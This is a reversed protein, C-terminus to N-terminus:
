EPFTSTDHSAPALLRAVLDRRLRHMGHALQHSVTAQPTQTRTAIEAVGLGEFYALEISRREAPALTDLASRAHDSDVLDLAGPSVRAGAAGHDLRDGGRLLALAHHRAIQLLRGRVCGVDTGSRAERWLVSFAEETLVDAHTPCMRHALSFVAGAHRDYITELAEHEGASLRRLLREDAEELAIAESLVTVRAPMSVIRDHLLNHTQSM